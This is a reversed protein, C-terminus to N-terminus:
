GCDGPGQRAVSSLGQAAGGSAARGARQHEVDGVRVPNQAGRRVPQKKGNTSGSSLGIPGSRSGAHAEWLREDAVQM